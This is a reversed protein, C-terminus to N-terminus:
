KKKREEIEEEIKKAAEKGAEVAKEVKSANRRAFLAGVIIGAAFVLSYLIFTVM